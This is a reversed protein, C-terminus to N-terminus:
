ARAPLIRITWLSGNSHATIGNGLSNVNAQLDYSFTEGSCKDGITDDDGNPVPEVPVHITFSLGPCGAASTLSITFHASRTSSTSNNITANIIGSGSGPGGSLGGDYSAVWFFNTLVGNIIYDQPNVSFPVGSCVPSVSTTSGVPKSQINVTLDFPTGVCTGNVPVITYIVPVTVGSSNTWAHFYLADAAFGTGTSPGGDIWALGNDVINTINFLRQQERLSIRLPPM